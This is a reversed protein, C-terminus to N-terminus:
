DDNFNYEVENITVNSSQVYTKDVNDNNTKYYQKNKIDFVEGTSYNVIFKRESKNISNKIGLKKLDNSDLLYYYDEYNQTVGVSYNKKIVTEDFDEESIRASSSLRTGIIERPRNVDEEFNIDESISTASIGIQNEAKIIAYRQVVAEQVMSLEIDINKNKVVNIEPRAIEIITGVLVALVVITIILVILTVGNKNIKQM